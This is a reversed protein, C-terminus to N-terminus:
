LGFTGPEFGPKAVLLDECPSRKKNGSNDAYVFGANPHCQFEETM